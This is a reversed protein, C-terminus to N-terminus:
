EPNIGFSRARFIEQFKYNFVLPNPKEVAMQMCSHGRSSAFRCTLYLNIIRYTNTKPSLIKILFLQHWIIPEHESPIHSRAHLHVSVSIQRWHDFYIALLHDLFLWCISSFCIICSNSITQFVTQDHFFKSHIIRTM